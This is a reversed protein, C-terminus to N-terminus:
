AVGASRGTALIIFWRGSVTRVIVYQRVSPIRSYDALKADSDRKHSSRSVAEVVIVPGTLAEVTKDIAEGCRVLVDPEYVTDADARVAIGDALAERRLGAAAIADGLARSVWGKMRAHGPREPAM